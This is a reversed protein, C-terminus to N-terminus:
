HSEKLIENSRKGLYVSAMYQIIVLAVVIVATSIYFSDKFNFSFESEFTYKLTLYSMLFSFTIGLFVSFIVVIGYEFLLNKNISQSPSGLVKFLNIEWKRDQLQISILSILVIFGTILSLYAMLELSLTMQDSVRLLDKILQRVDIVSVNPLSKAVQSIISAVQSDSLGNVIGISTKPAEDLVGKGFAIFFNPQFSAWKV